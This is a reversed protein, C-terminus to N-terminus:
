ILKGIILESFKILIELNNFHIIRYRLSDFFTVSADDIAAVLYKVFRAVEVIVKSHVRTFLWKLALNAILNERLSTIKCSM